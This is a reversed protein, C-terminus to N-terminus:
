FRMESARWLSRWLRAPLPGLGTKGSTLSKSRATCCRRLSEQFSREMRPSTHPAPAIPGGPMRLRVESSELHALMWGVVYRSFIDLIVYLYYYTWKVPGRLKTIDWSWVQNPAEALLEPKTYNPHATPEPARPGRRAGGFDSVDHSDLLPLNGRGSAHGVGLGRRSQARPLGRPRASHATRRCPARGPVADHTDSKM